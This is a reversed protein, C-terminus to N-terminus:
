INNSCFGFEKVYYVFIKTTQGWIELRVDRRARGAEGEKNWFLSSEIGRQQVCLIDGTNPFRKEM